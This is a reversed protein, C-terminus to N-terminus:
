RILFMYGLHSKWSKGPGADSNWSKGPRSFSKKFNWSKGPNGPGTRVRFLLLLLVGGNVQLIVEKTAENEELTNFIASKPELWHGGDVSTYVIKHKMLESYLPVLM